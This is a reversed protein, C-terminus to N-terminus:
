TGSEFTIFIWQIRGTFIISFQSILNLRTYASTRLLDVHMPTIMRESCEHREAGLHRALEEEMVEQAMVRLMERLLDVDMQEQTQDLYGECKNRTM